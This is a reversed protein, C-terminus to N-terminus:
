RAQGRTFQVQVSYNIPAAAAISPLSSSSLDLIRGSPNEKIGCRTIIGTVVKQNGGTRYIMRIVGGYKSLIELNDRKTSGTDAGQEEFVIGTVTHVTNIRYIDQINVVNLADIESQTPKLPDSAAASPQQQSPLAIPLVLPDNTFISEFIGGPDGVTVRVTIYNQSNSIQTTSIDGTPATTFYVEGDVLSLTVM